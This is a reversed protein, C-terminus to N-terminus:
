ASIRAAEHQAPDQTMGIRGSILDKMRDQFAQHLRALTAGKDSEWEARLAAFSQASEKLHPFKAAALRAPFEIGEVEEDFIDFAGLMNELSLAMIEPRGDITMELAVDIGNTRLYAIFLAQEPCLRPLSYNLDALFIDDWCFAPMSWLRRLDAIMGYQVMDCPHFPRLYSDIRGTGIAAGWIRNELSLHPAAPSLEKQLIADSHFLIDNRTKICFPRSALALGKATSRLMRNINNPRQRPHELAGPDRNLLIADAELGSLDSGIWTSIIIEAQPFASRLSALVDDISPAEASRQRTCPGQVVISLDHDSACQTM